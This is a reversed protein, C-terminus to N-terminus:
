VTISSEASSVDIECASGSEFLPLDLIAPRRLPRLLLLLVQQPEREATRELAEFARDLDGLAAYIM